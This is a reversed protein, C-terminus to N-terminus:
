EYLRPHIYRESQAYAGLAERDKEYVTVEVGRWALLAAATVGAAGAGIIAAHRPRPAKEGELLYGVLSIARNQQAFTSMRKERGAALFYIGPHGALRMRDYAEEGDRHRDEM